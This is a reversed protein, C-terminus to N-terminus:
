IEDEEIEINIKIPIARLMEAFLKGIDESTIRPSYIRKTLENM